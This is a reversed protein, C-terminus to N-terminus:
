GMCDNDLCETIILIVSLLGTPRATTSKDPPIVGVVTFITMEDRAL